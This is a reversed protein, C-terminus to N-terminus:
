LTAESNLVNVTLDINVRETAQDYVVECPISYLGSPTGQLAVLTFCEDNLADLELKRLNPLSPIKIEFQRYNHLKVYEGDLHGGGMSINYPGSSVKCNHSSDEHISPPGFIMDVTSGSAILADPLTFKIQLGTIEPGNNIFQLTTKAKIRDSNTLLLSEMKGRRQDCELVYKKTEAIFDQKIKRICRGGTDHLNITKYHFQKDGNAKVMEKEEEAEAIKADWYADDSHLTFISLIDSFISRNPAPCLSINLAVSEEALLVKFNQLLVKALDSKQKQVAGTDADKDLSYTIPNRIHSINFPTKIDQAFNIARNQILITKEYGLSSLALGYEVMVNPNPLGKKRSTSTEPDVNDLVAVHTVDAIYANANEIKSKITEFIPPNGATGKLDSDLQVSDDGQHVPPIEGSQRPSRDIAVEQRLLQIAEEIASQIFARNTRNPSDSQWSYFIKKPM